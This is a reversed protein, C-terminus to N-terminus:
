EDGDEKGYVKEIMETVYDMMSLVAGYEMRSPGVVMLKHEEDDDGQFSSTIVAMDDVWTLESQTSRRLTMQDHQSSLQRWIHSDELMGMLQRLKTVDSFEPQMLMNKRGSMYVEDQAFKVFAGVFAEFLEEYHSLRQSLIPKLSEMRVVVESLPTGKLRDNLITTCSELDEVSIEDDFKFVRHEAHGSETVFVAMASLSNLPILQISKLTEDNSSPGLVVSTLNTMQSLIDCSQRIAEEISLRRDSFIQSLAVEVAQNQVDEMLHEVFFRYGKTSPIRGSSTHTKELLGLKELDSMENRITASSYNLNYKDILTKSGVPEATNVFENVIAKFVEIKRETLM